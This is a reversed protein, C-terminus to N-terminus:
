EDIGDDSLEVKGDIFKNIQKIIDSVVNLHNGLKMLDKNKDDILKFVKEKLELEETSSKMKLEMLYKM